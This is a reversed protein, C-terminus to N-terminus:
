EPLFCLPNYSLAKKDAENDEFKISSPPGILNLLEHELLGFKINGIGIGLKLEPRKM